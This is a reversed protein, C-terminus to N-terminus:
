LQDSHKKRNKYIDEAIKLLMGFCLGMGLLSIIIRYDTKYEPDRRSYNVFFIIFLILYGGVKKM